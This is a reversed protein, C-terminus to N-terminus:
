AGLRRKGRGRRRQHKSTPRKSSQGRGSWEDDLGDALVKADPPLVGTGDQRNIRTEHGWRIVGRSFRFKPLSLLRDRICMESGVLSPMIDYATKQKFFFFLPPM